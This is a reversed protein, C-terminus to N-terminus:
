GSTEPILCRIVKPLYPVKVLELVGMDHLHPKEHFASSDKSCSTLVVVLQERGGFGATLASTSDTYICNTSTNRLGLYKAM